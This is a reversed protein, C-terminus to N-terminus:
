RERAVELLRPEGLAQLLGADDLFPGDQDPWLDRCDGRRLRHRLVPQEPNADGRRRPRVLQAEHGRADEGPEIGSARPSHPLDAPYGTQDVPGLGLRNSVMALRCFATTSPVGSYVASAIWTSLPSSATRLRGPIYM